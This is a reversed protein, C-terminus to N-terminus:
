DVLMNACHHKVAQFSGIPRGFQERTAAYATAMETCAALGGVAEAAALLRVIRGARGAAGAFIDAVPATSLSLVTIPQMVQDVSDVSRTTVADGAEVLVLDYGVRFLFIYSAPEALAAVSDAAVASDSQTANSTACIGAVIDGSTLGPLWRKRQEDTGVEAIVSSVAVTPLFPGGIAARGLQELVITLEPLGYGEGGFQADVHLGLWGTSVIEKWLGDDCWWRGQMKPELLIRRAGATGSRGAVMAKAVDALARHDETIALPM